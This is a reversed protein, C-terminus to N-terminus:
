DGYDSVGTGSLHTHSFGYIYEDSYHYGSCGDWGRLRTDPSLQMMGFPMTAGPFTHGHADTGIFPNVYHVLNQKPLEQAHTVQLYLVSVFLVLLTPLTYKMYRLNLRVSYLYFIKPCVVSLRRHFHVPSSCKVGKVDM